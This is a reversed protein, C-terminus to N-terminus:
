WDFDFVFLGEELAVLLLSNGFGGVIRRHGVMLICPSTSSFLAIIDWHGLGLVRLRRHGFLIIINLYAIGHIDVMGLSPFLKFSM